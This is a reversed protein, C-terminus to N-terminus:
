AGGQNIFEKLKKETFELTATILTSYEYNNLDQLTTNLDQLTKKQVVVIDVLAIIIPEVFEANAVVDLLRAKESIM